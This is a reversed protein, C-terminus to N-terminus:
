EPAEPPPLRPEREMWRRTALKWNERRNEDWERAYYTGAIPCSFWWRLWRFTHRLRRLM